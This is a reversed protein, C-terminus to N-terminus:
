LRELWRPLFPEKTEYVCINLLCFMDWDIKIPVFLTVSASTMWTGATGKVL